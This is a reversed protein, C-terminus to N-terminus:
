ECTAAGCIFSEQVRFFMAGHRTKTPCTASDSQAPFQFRGRQKDVPVHFLRDGFLRGAEKLNPQASEAPGM